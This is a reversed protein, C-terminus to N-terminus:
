GSRPTTASPTAASRTIRWGSNGNIKTDSYHNYIEYGSRDTQSWLKTTSNYTDRPWANSNTRQGGCMISIRWSLVENGECAPMQVNRFAPARLSNSM